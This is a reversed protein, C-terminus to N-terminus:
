RKARPHASDYIKALHQFDLHTYVQTSTISAHGLMEQVARLDGSSQLVHSAFSHRLMHPHVHRSLGALQAQRSLRLQIMRQGLRRGRQGVFLATEEPGALSGRVQAWAALAERAKSGVPVLRMKSRKGLVRIEGEHLASDLADCDLAALEALRLGSSYFLESMAIDRAALVSDGEDVPDLLRAAEDVLLANPLHKPSKPPRLGECPNAPVADHQGLWSFFGRWASLLRAISRGSLGQAHLQGIFRRVHHLRVDSLPLEGALMVLRRLDRGYNSITHPSQRRQEALEALYADVASLAIM